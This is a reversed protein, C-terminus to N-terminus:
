RTDPSSDAARAPQTDAQDTQPVDVQSEDQSGQYSRAARERTRTRSASGDGKAAKLIDEVEDVARDITLEGSDAHDDFLNIMRDSRRGLVMLRLYLSKDVKPKRVVDIAFAFISLPSLLFDRLADAALKLQFVMVHRLATSTRVRGDDDGEDDSFM